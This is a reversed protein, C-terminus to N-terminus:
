TTGEPEPASEARAISAGHVPGDLADLGFLGLSVAISVAPASLPNLADALSPQRIAQEQVPDTM